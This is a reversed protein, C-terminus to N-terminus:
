NPAPAGAGDKPKNLFSPKPSGTRSTWNAGTTDPIRRSPPVRPHRMSVGLRALVAGLIGIALAVPNVTFPGPPTVLLSAGAGVVLFGGVVILGLALYYKM